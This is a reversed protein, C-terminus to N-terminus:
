QTSTLVSCGLGTVFAGGFSRLAVMGAWAGDLLQPLVIRFAAPSTTSSLSSLVEGISTQNKTLEALVALLRKRAETTQMAHTEEEIRAISRTERSSEIRLAVAVAV